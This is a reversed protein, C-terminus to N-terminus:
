AGVQQEAIGGAILALLAAITVILPLWTVVGDLSRYLLSGETLRPLVHPNIVEAVFSIFLMAGAWGAAIRVVRGFM